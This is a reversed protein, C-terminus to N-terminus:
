WYATIDTATTGTDLIKYASIPHVVGAALGTAIFQNGEKDEFAIDGGVKCSIGRSTIPEAGNGFDYSIPDDDSPTVLIAGTAPLRATLNAKGSM